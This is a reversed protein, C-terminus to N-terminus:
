SAAGEDLLQSAIRERNWAGDGLLSESSKARKFYLHVDYEWTFGVGGHMQLGCGANFFYADSCYAKAMSAAELLESAVQLDGESGALVEQAVCAGYYVASRAVEAQLTMDAAKHKISQFSAITRGFQEREQVYEVSQSLIAQAGGCQEAALAIRALDLVRELDNGELQHEVSLSVNDFSLTALKRTQDMTPTWARQVGETDAPLVFLALEGSESDRAAVVLIEASHGDVVYHYEGTLEVGDGNKTFQATVSKDSWDRGGGSFALTATKGEVIEACWKAKQSDSGAMLLANVGFCVTAFYPSCLLRHGMQEMVVAVEVYGLGLGGYEEPIHVAHWFMEECVSQWLAMDYGLETAMAERVAASDSKAALFGEASERIMLQEETLAFEM